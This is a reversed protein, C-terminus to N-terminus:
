IRKLEKFFVSDTPYSTTHDYSYSIEDYIVDQDVCSSESSNIAFCHVQPIQNNHTNSIANTIPFPLIQIINVFTDVHKTKKM